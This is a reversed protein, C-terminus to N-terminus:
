SPHVAFRGSDPRDDQREDVIETCARHSRRSSRREVFPWDFLVQQYDFRLVTYGRLALRADAHLDRRRDKAGITSSRRRLQTVLREGILADVPHGDLWVQQRSRFAAPRRLRAISCADRPRLGLARSACQRATRQPEHVAGSSRPSSRRIPKARASRPSGRRRPCRARPLCGLSTSRARERDPRRRRTRGRDGTGDGLPPETREADFRSSTPSVTSTLASSHRTSGRCGCRRSDRQARRVHRSREVSRRQSCADSRLRGDGAVIQRIRVRADGTAVALALDHTPLLRRRPDRHIHAIPATSTSGARRLKAEMRAARDVPTAVHSGIRPQAAGRSCRAATRSDAPREEAPVVDCRCSGRPSRAPDADDGLDPSM